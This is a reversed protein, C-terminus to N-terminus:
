TWRYRAGEGLSPGEGLTPALKAIRDRRQELDHRGSVELIQEFTLGGCCPGLEEVDLYGLAVFLEEGLGTDRTDPVDRSLGGM